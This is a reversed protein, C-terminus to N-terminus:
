TVLARAYAHAVSERPPGLVLEDGRRKRWATPCNVTEAGWSRSTLTRSNGPYRRRITTCDVVARLNQTITQWRRPSFPQRSINRSSFGNLTDGAPTPVWVGPPFRRRGRKGESRTARDYKTFM